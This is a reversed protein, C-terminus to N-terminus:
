VECGQLETSWGDGVVLPFVRKRMYHSDTEGGRKPFVVVGGVGIGGLRCHVLNYKRVAFARQM